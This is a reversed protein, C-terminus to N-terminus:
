LPEPLERKEITSFNSSDQVLFEINFTDRYKPKWPLTRLAGLKLSIKGDSIPWAAHEPDVAHNCVCSEKVHPTVKLKVPLVFANDSTFV